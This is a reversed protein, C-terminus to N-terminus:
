GSVSYQSRDQVQKTPKNNVETQDIINGSASQSQQGHRVCGDRVIWEIPQKFSWWFRMLPRRTDILYEDAAILGALWRYAMAPLLSDVNLNM